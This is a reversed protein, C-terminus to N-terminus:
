SSEDWRLNLSACLEVGPKRVAKRGAARDDLADRSSELAKTVTGDCGMDIASFEEIDQLKRGLVNRTM